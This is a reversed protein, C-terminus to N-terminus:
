YNQCTSWNNSCDFSSVGCAGCCPVVPYLCGGYQEWCYSTSYQVQIVSETDYCGNCSPSNPCTTTRRIRERRYTTGRKRYQTGFSGATSAFCQTEYLGTSVYTWGTWWEGSTYPGPACWPECPAGYEGCTVPGGKGPDYGCETSCPHSETCEWCNELYENTAAKLRRASKVEGPGNVMSPAFLPVYQEGLLQASRLALGAFAATERHQGAYRIQVDIAMGDNALRHLERMTDPHQTLLEIVPTGALRETTQILAQPEAKRPAANAPANGSNTRLPLEIASLDITETLYLRGSVSYRIELTGGTLGAISYLIRESTQLPTIASVYATNEEAPPPCAAQPIEPAALLPLTVLTLVFLAVVSATSRCSYRAM